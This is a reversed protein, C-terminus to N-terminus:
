STQKDFYVNAFSKTDVPNKRWKKMALVIKALQNLM